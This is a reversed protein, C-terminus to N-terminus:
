GSASRDRGATRRGRGKRRRRRSTHKKGTGEEPALLEMKEGYEAVVQRRLAERGEDPLGFAWASYDWARQRVLDREFLTRCAECLGLDGVRGWLDCARCQGEYGEWAEDYEEDFESM